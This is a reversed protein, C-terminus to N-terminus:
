PAAFARKDILNQVAAQLAVKVPGPFLGSCVPFQDHRFINFSDHFDGLGRDKWMEVARLLELAALNEFRAAEDDIVPYNFLYIKKEKLISRSIKETWPSIRFTLYFADFLLLWNKITDFAVQLTVKDDAISVIKGQGLQGGLMGVRLCDGPKARHINIVHEARRSALCVTDSDTFDKETVIILNM